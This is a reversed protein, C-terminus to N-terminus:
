LILVTVGDVPYIDAELALTVKKAPVCMYIFDM